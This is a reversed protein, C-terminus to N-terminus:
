LYYDHEPPKKETLLNIKKGFLSYISGSLHRVRDPRGEGGGGVDSTIKKRGPV